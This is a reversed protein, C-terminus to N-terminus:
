RVVRKRNVKVPATRHTLGKITGVAAVDERAQDEHITLYRSTTRVDRHGAVYQAALISGRRALATLAFHRLSHLTRHPLGALEWYRDVTQHFSDARLTGGTLTPGSSRPKHM